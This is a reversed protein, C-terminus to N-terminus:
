ATDDVLRQLASSTWHQRMEERTHADPLHEHHVALKTGSAAKLVRLQLTSPADWDAPQYAARLATGPTEPRVGRVAADDLLARLATWASARDVPVTRRVGVEWWGDATQGTPTV